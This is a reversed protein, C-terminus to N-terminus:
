KSKPNLQYNIQISFNRGPQARASYLQYEQNLINKVSIRADFQNRLYQFSRGVSVDFLTYAQLAFQSTNTPTTFRESSFQGALLVDWKRYNIHLFGSATHIPTFTLQKGITNAESEPAKTIISQTLQYSLKANLLLQGINQRYTMSSEVGQVEVQKVNRPRYRGDAGPVWQIWDDVLQYFATADVEWQVWQAALGAEAAHSTESTLNVNGADQWYRDNLTPARFNKSVSAKTLLGFHKKKLLLYDAGLYPLLPASVHTIFPQRLNLAVSLRDFSRHVAAALEMRNEVAQGSEYQKLNGIIHNANISTHAYWKQKIVFFQDVLALWRRVNSRSGNFIIVDDVFGAKTQSRFLNKNWEYNLLLRHNEDQQEDENNITGIVPQIERDVYQYWYDLSVASANSIAYKITQTTGQQLVAAHQQRENLGAIPFNNKSQLHYLSGTYHLKKARLNAGVSTFYRGFSAVEQQLSFASGSSTPSTLLVTGGFAGSGFRASGGGTHVRVSGFAISPLTSFDAQGLSFSNINVGNWLVATHQPATGRLSIGSLMGSGYNRFYIPFQFSLVEGLHRSSNIKQLASDYERIHSGALFREDAQARIVVAQLVITTDQHARAMMSSLLLGTLLGLRLVM